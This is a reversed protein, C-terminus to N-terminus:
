HNNAQEITEMSLSVDLYTYKSVKIIIFTASYTTDKTEIEYIYSTKFFKIHTNTGTPKGFINIIYFLVTKPMEIRIVDDGLHQEPVKKKQKPLFIYNNHITM